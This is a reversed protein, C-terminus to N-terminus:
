LYEAAMKDFSTAYKEAATKSNAGPLDDKAKAGPMTGDAGDQGELETIRANATALQAQVETLGAHAANATALEAELEAVRSNATAADAIATANAALSAEIADLAAEPVLYGNDEAATGAAIPNFATLDIAAAAALIAVFSASSKMNTKQKKADALAMSIITNFSEIGDILGHEAAANALYTKGSLVNEKKLKLRNGRGSTVANHFSETMPNIIRQKYADPNRSEENKDPSLDSYVEIYDTKADAKPDKIRAVTGICGFMDTTSTAYINTCQTLAWVAASCAMGSVVGYVPKVGTAAKIAKGFTETGDVQGGPCNESLILIAKIGPNAAAANVMATLTASGASGCVDAKTLVGNMTILAVNKPVDPLKLSSFFGTSITEGALVQQALKLYEDLHEASVMWTDKLISLSLPTFM